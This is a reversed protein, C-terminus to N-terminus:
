RYLNPSVLHCTIKRKEQKRGDKRARFVHGDHGSRRRQFGGDWGAVEGKKGLHLQEKRDGIRPKTIDGEIGGGETKKQERGRRNNASESM